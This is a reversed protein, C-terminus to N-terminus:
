SDVRRRLLSLGFVSLGLLAWLAAVALLLVATWWHMTLPEVGYVVASAWFVFVTGAMNATARAGGLLFNGFEEM